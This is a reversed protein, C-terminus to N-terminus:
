FQDVLYGKTELFRRVAPYGRPTVQWIDNVQYILENDELTYVTKTVQGASVPLLQALTHLLLGNHLLLTQLVFAEDHGAEAYIAPLNITDWPTVWLDNVQTDDEESSTDSSMSAGPTARLASRLIDCAIGPNGRSHAALIQLFNSSSEASQNESSQKLINRGNDTQRFNRRNLDTGGASKQLLTTLRDQDFSQFTLLLPKRGNWLRSLYAWAWSNCGIIGPGPSDSCITHFFQRVLKLGSANRLYIKELSPLIWPGLDTCLNRLWSGGGDAILEPSPSSVVRWSLHQALINLTEILGNHPPFVLVVSRGEKVGDILWSELANLLAAAADSWDPEPIICNAECSPLPNLTESEIFVSNKDQSNREFLKRFFYLRERASQTVPTAPIQYDGVPVYQWYPPTEQQIQSPM